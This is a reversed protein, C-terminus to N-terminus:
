VPTGHRKKGFYNKQYLVYVPFVFISLFLFLIAWPSRTPKRRGAKQEAAAAM